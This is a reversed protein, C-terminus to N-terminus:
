FTAIDRGFVLSKMWYFPILMKNPKSNTMHWYSGRWTLFAPLGKMVSPIIRIQMSTDQSEPASTLKGRKTADVIAGWNGVHVMSGKHNYEFPKQEGGM